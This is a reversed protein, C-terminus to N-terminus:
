PTEMQAPEAAAAVPATAAPAVPAPAPAAKPPEQMEMLKTGNAWTLQKDANANLKDMTLVLDERVYGPEHPVQLMVIADFPCVQVCLECFICATMDLTFEDLYGRKKGTVPSEKKTSAMKIIQSPCIRECALCGVCLDEGHEDKLLAFSTRYRAKRERIVKPFQVTVPARGINKATVGLARISDLLYGM